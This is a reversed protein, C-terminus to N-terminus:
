KRRVLVNTLGIEALLNVTAPVEAEPIRRLVVRYLGEPFDQHEATEIEASLDVEALIETLREARARQTYSAVQVTRLAADAAHNTLIELRVRAVGEATMELADAAARSLDIIRGEVFPGRDNIRVVVSRGSSVHTVRVLTGFALTKHAATLENTDFLEGSATPRGQFKGGYWSAYGELEGAGHVEVGTSAEARALATVALLLLTVMHGIKTVSRSDAYNCM